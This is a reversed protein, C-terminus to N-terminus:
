IRDFRCLLLSLNNLPLIVNENARKFFSKIVDTFLRIKMEIFDDKNSQKVKRPLFM